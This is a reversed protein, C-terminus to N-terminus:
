QGTGVSSICGWEPHNTAQKLYDDADRVGPVCDMVYFPYQHEGYEAVGQTYIKILNQHSLRMLSQTEQLLVQTLLPEKGPSPRAVKLARNTNLDTDYLVAVIGSGGVGLTKRSQLQQSNM